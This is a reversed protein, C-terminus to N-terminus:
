TLFMKMIFISVIHRIKSHQGRCQPAFLLPKYLITVQAHLCHSWVTGFEESGGMTNFFDAKIQIDEIFCEFINIADIRLMETCM